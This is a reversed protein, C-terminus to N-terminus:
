ISPGPRYSIDINSVPDTRGYTNEQEKQEKDRLMEKTRQLDTKSNGVLNRSIKRLERVPVVEGQSLVTASKSSHQMNPQPNNSHQGNMPQAKREAKKAEKWEYDKGFQKLRGVDKIQGDTFNETEAKFSTNFERYIGNALEKRLRADRLQSWSTQGQRQEGHVNRQLDDGKKTELQYAAYEDKM